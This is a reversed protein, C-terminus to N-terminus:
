KSVLVPQSQQYQSTAVLPRHTLTGCVVRMADQKTSHKTSALLQIHKYVSLGLLPARLLALLAM